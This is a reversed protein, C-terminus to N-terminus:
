GWDEIKSARTMLDIMAKQPSKNNFLTHYIQETIPMVVNNKQSIEYASLTTKVGEAVMVMEDLVEKLSRGKGIQEGVHRNRSHKSMCTVILDGMGSLGAFTDSKAGLEVGLRNIEVLGRTILAAKTNDGFGAGDCIGAALAIINKLAGGLEVGIVDDNAYVRLYQNIFAEQVIKASEISKSASVIATPIKRGVEEAHSPGSLAVIKNPDVGGAQEIVQSIRLYTDNEIGKSVTVWIPDPGQLVSKINEVVKRTVQSPVASVIIEADSVIEKMNTSILLSEPIKVGPLFDGNEGTDKIKDVQKQDLTWCKVAHGNEYLVLALATGWSGTGIVSINM